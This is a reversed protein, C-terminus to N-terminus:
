LFLSALGVIGMWLVDNNIKKAERAIRFAIM